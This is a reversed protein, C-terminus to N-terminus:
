FRVRLPNTRDNCFENKHCTKICDKILNLDVTIVLIHVFVWRHEYIAVDKHIIFFKMM